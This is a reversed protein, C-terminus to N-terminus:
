NDKHDEIHKQMLHNTSIIQVEPSKLQFIKPILDSYTKLLGKSDDSWQASRKKVQRGNYFNFFAESSQIELLLFMWGCESM